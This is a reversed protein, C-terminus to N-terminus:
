VGKSGFEGYLYVGLLGGLASFGVTYVALFGIVVTAIVLVSLAAIPEFVFLVLGLPVIVLLPVLAIAGSLAGIKLGSGASAGELYGAVTGGLVPSLPLFFTTVVTVVAGILANLLTNPARDADTQTGRPVGSSRDAAETTHRDSEPTPDGSASGDDQRSHDSPM